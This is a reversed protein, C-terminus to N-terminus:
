STDKYEVKDEKRIKTSLREWFKSTIRSFKDRVAGHSNGGTLSPLTTDDSFAIAILWTQPTTSNETKIPGWM